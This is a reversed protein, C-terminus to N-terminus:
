RADATAFHRGLTRHWKNSSLEPHLAALGSGFKSIKAPRIRHAWLWRDIVTAAGPSKTELVLDGGLHTYRGDPALCVLGSDLTVRAGGVPDLLTTRHYRSGLIEVLRAGVGDVGSAADVFSRLEVPVRSREGHDIPRRHKVTRGRGDRTKVELLSVGADAYTRTRVKFRRRRALAAGRYSDLEPTDFYCSEYAFSQRGDIDLVRLRDAHDALMATVADAPVVYKREVRDLLSAAEDLEALSVPRLHHTMEPATVVGTM